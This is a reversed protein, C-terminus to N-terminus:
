AGAASSRRMLRRMRMALGAHDDLDDWTVRMMTWGTAERMLDERRKEAFVADSPTQGPELLRGYKIRGDFEGLLKAGPWALDSIWLLAGRSDRVVFQTLPKPIGQEWCIFRWRTELWAKQMLM